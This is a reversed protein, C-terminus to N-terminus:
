GLFALMSVAADLFTKSEIRGNEPVEVFSAKLNAFFSMKGCGSYTEIGFLHTLLNKSRALVVGVFRWRLTRPVLHVPFKAFLSAIMPFSSFLIFIPTHSQNQEM